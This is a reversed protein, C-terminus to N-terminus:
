LSIKLIIILLQKLSKIINKLIGKCEDMLERIASNVVTKDKSKLTIMMQRM